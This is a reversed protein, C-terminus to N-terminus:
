GFKAVHAHVLEAVKAAREAKGDFSVHVEFGVLGQTRVGDVRTDDSSHHKPRRKLPPARNKRVLENVKLAARARGAM